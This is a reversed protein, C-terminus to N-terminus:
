AVTRSVWPFDALGGTHDYGLHTLVIHRVATESECLAPRILHRSWGQLRPDRVCNLGFGTDVLVLGADPTEVLLCRDVTGLAMTGCNLHHVKM